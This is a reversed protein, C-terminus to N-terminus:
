GTPKSSRCVPSRSGAERGGRAAGGHRRRRGAQPRAGAGRRLGACQAARQVAHQRRDDRHVPHAQTRSHIRAPGAPQHDARQARRDEAFTLSSTLAFVHYLPLPTVVTERGDQLDRAIWASLQQLNAVLNGHTLVAGKAVGTTGGTYQLFAMDDHNLPEDHLAQARGARLRRTSHPPAPSAGARCWRRSTSSSSTPSCSSSRASVPRRGPHHDGRHAAGPQSRAGAAAHARLERARRDSRRGLREVPARARQATYQPNVNVVVLGARLVGFLAVPYQLLNPMM